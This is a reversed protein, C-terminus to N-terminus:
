CAEFEFFTGARGARQDLWGRRAFGSRDCTLDVEVGFGMEALGQEGKAAVHGADFGAGDVLVRFSLKDHVRSIKCAIAIMDVQGAMDAMAPAIADGLLLGFTRHECAACADKLALEMHRHINALLGIGVHLVIREQEFFARHHVGLGLKLDISVIDFAGVTVCAARKISFLKEIQALAADRFGM